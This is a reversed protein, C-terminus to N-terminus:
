LIVSQRRSYFLHSSMTTDSIDAIAKLERHESSQLQTFTSTATRPEWDRVTGLSLSLSLPHHHHTHPPLPPSMCFSVVTPKMSIKLFFRFDVKITPRFLM